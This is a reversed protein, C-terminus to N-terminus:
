CFGFSSSLVADDYDNVIYMDSLLIGDTARSGRYVILKVMAGKAVAGCWEVDLDAEGEEDESVIGPDTGNVIIEPNDEAFGYMSRFTAVDNVNFNSRGVIAIIQGTGDFGQNWLPALDYITAFDYPVMAHRGGFTFNPLSQFRQLKPKSVFDHLSVVGAVVGALAQPISIDTANAIHMEGNFEYR